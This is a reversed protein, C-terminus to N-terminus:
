GKDKNDQEAHDKKWFLYVKRQSLMVVLKVLKAMKASDAGGISAIYERTVGFPQHRSTAFEKKFRLRKNKIFADKLKYIPLACTQVGTV